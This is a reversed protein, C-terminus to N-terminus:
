SIRNRNEVAPWKRVRNTRHEIWRYREPHRHMNRRALGRVHDVRRNNGGCAFLDQVQSVLMAVRPCIFSRSGQGPRLCLDLKLMKSYARVFGM